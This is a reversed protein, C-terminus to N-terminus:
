GSCLTVRPGQVPHVTFFFIKSALVWCTVCVVWMGKTNWPFFSVEGVRVIKVHEFKPNVIIKRM